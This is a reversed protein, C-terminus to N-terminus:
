MCGFQQGHKNEIYEDMETETYLFYNSHCNWFSVYLEGDETQIPRQAASEGFGDSNQVYVAWRLKETEEANLSEILYCDIKGYLEDNIEEVDWVAYIIKNGLGSHDGLYEAMDGLDPAQEKILMKKIGDRNDAIYYSSVQYHDDETYLHAVLPCYFTLRADAMEIKMKEIDDFVNDISAYQGHLINQELESKIEDRVNTVSFDLMNTDYLSNRENLLHILHNGINSDSYLKVTIPDDENDTLRIKSSPILIGISDLERSLHYNNCPFEIVLTGGDQNEIVAKIM